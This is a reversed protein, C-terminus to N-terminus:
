FLLHHVLFSITSLCRCLSLASLWKSYPRRLFVLPDARCPSSFVGLLLIWYYFFCDLCHLVYSYLDLKLFAVNPYISLYDISSPFWRPLSQLLLHFFSHFVLPYFLVSCFVLRTFQISPLFLFAVHPQGLIGVRSFRCRNLCHQLLRHCSWSFFCSPQCIITTASFTNLVRFRYLM